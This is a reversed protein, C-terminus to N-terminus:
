TEVKDFLMKMSRYQEPFLQIFNLVKHPPLLLYKIRKWKNKLKGLNQESVQVRFPWIHEQSSARTEQTTTSRSSPYYIVKSVHESWLGEWPKKRVQTPMDSM